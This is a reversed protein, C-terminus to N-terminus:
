PDDPPKVHRPDHWRNVRRVVFWVFICGLVVGVAIRFPEVVLIVLLVPILYAAAAVIVSYQPLKRKRM